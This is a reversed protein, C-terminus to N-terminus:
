ETGDGAYARLMPIMLEIVKVEAGTLDAPVTLSGQPKNKFYIPFKITGEPPDEENTKRTDGPKGDGKDNRRKVVTRPRRKKLHPSVSLKAEARAKLYFREARELMTGELGSAAAFAEDLDKPSITALNLGDVIPQYAPEIVKALAVPWKEKDGVAAVLEQMKPTARSDPGQILGLFRLAIMLHSQVGGSYTNMLGKNIKDPLATKHLSEVFGRFTEFPPYALQSKPKPNQGPSQETNSM